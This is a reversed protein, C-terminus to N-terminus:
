DLEKRPPLQVMELWYEGFWKFIEVWKDFAIPKIIFSTAGLDYSLAVDEPQGATSLVVVPIGRFSPDSKLQELIEYGSDKPLSLDLLLLDPRPSLEPDAYKNRHFLYDMLDDCDEVFRLDCSLHNEQFADKVLLCDDQDDDVMLITVIQESRTM